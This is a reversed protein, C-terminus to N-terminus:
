NNGRRLTKIINRRLNLLRWLLALLVIVAFLLFVPVAPISISVGLVSTEFPKQIERARQKSSSTIKSRVADRIFDEKTAYGLGENEERALSFIPTPTVDGKTAPVFGVSVGESLVHACVIIHRRGRTPM